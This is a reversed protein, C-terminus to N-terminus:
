AVMQILQHPVMELCPLVMETKSAGARGERDDCAALFAPYVAEPITWGREGGKVGGWGSYVCM